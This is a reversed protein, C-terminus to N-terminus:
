NQGRRAGIVLDDCFKALLKGAGTKDMASSVSIMGAFLFISVWDISAYAQKERFLRRLLRM